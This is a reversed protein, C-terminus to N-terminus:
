WRESSVTPSLCLVAATWKPVTVLLAWPDTKSLTLIIGTDEASYPWCPLSHTSIIRLLLWEAVGSFCACLRREYFARLANCYPCGTAETNRETLSSISRGM